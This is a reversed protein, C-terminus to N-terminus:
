EAPKPPEPYWDDRLIDDLTFPCNDPLTTAAGQEGYRTLGLGARRRARRYLEPLITEIDRRLTASLQYNLADRAEVVSEMWGIRPDSAPSHALKLLHEIVRLIQSRVADRQSNGLSEIEEAVNERDFQNDDTRLARLVGAQHQTWAYFDEDYRPGDPM